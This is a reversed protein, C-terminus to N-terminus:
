KVEIKKTVNAKKAEEKRPLVIMLEGNQYHADIAELKVDEPLTFSRSFSNYSYERRSFTEEKTEKTEEKESSITLMNGEVDIKFDEKKLGPAALSVTYNDSNEKINVAPVNAMRNMIRSDDVLLDWPKFFDEFVSPM